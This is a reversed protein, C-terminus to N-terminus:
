FIFPIFLTSVLSNIAFVYELIHWEDYKIVSLPPHCGPDRTLSQTRITLKSGSTWINM